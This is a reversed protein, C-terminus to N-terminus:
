RPELRDPEHEGDARPCCCCNPLSHSHCSVDPWDSRSPSHQSHSSPGDLFSVLQFLPANWLASEVKQVIERQRTWIRRKRTDYGVGRRVECALRGLGLVDAGTWLLLRLFKTTLLSSSSSSSPAAPFFPFPFPLPSTCMFSASSLTLKRM